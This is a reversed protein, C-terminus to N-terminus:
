HGVDAASARPRRMWHGSLDALHAALAGLLAAAVLTWDADTLALRVAVMLCAGALLNAALRGLGPGVGWRRHLLHLALAEVAVGVLIIDILRGSALLDQM